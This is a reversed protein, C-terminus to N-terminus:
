MSAGYYEPSLTEGSYYSSTSGSDPYYYNRESSHMNSQWLPPAGTTHGSLQSAYDRFYFREAENATSYSSPKFLHTHMAQPPRAFGQYGTPGGWYTGQHHLQQPMVVNMGNPRFQYPNQKKEKNPNKKNMIQRYKARRNKFWIQVRSEPLGIKNAVEERMFIDPYHTKSFLTELLELQVKTFTTRERRHKRPVGCGSSVSSPTGQPTITPIEFPMVPCFVGSM